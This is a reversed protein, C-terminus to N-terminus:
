RLMMRLQGLNMEPVLIHSFNKMMAGLQAPLPTIYRIQCAAVSVGKEQLELTAAKIAGFTSGWGVVLVEGKKPGTWIVDPGAPKIGAIKAARTRAMHEHNGADDSVNGTGEQKKLVGM